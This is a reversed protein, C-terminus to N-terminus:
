TKQFQGVELYYINPSVSSEQQDRTMRRTAMREADPRDVAIVSPRPNPACVTRGSASGRMSFNTADTDRGRSCAVAVVSAPKPVREVSESVSDVVRPM